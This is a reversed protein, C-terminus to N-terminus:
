VIGTIHKLYQQLEYLCQLVGQSFKEASYPHHNAIGPLSVLNQLIHPNYKMTCSGLPYFHTDVSFNKQSLKTYHRVVELESVEPLRVPDHRLYKAAIKIKAKAKPLHSSAIRGPQSKEFILKTHTKNM